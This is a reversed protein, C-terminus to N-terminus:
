KPNLTFGITAKLAQEPATKFNLVEYPLEIRAGAKLDSGTRRIDLAVTKGAFLTVSPPFNIGAVKGAAKLDLDVPARNHVQLLASGRGSIKLAPTKMELSRDFLPRLWTTDGIVLNQFWVASRRERLAQQIGAVSRERAFVLTIPRHDNPPYSYDMAVTGHIDSNGLMTLQKDLCWQHAIPDYERGNVIEIGHLWGNTLAEQQEDYWVSKREPQKWGPHNWFVFAGQAHAARLAARHDNTPIANLDELFLLNWHGPPEGRTLEAAKVLLLGLSVAAGRALEFPRQYNTLVMDRKHPLYELHDTLAIADLGERWAEEPRLTPWVNGDSFVTHTHFDCKLTLAGPLDPFEIETRVRQAYTHALALLLLAALLM